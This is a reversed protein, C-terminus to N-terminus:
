GANSAAEFASLLGTWGGESDLVERLQAAVAGYNELKRHEFEVQTETPSIATFRLEVETLLAPDFRWEASIQWNLVLRGPREHVLVSGWQCETGDHAIEYWRGGAFPEVVVTKQGAAAITHSKLWWDGMRACFVDFAREQSAKVTFVKRIPAPTITMNVTM